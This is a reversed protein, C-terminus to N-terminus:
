VIFTVMFVIWLVVCIVTRLASQSVFMSYITGVLLIAAIVVLGICFSLQKLASSYFWAQVQNRREVVTKGTSIWAQKMQTLTKGNEFPLQTKRLITLPIVMFVVPVMALAANRIWGRTAYGYALMLLVALLATAIAQLIKTRSKSTGSMRVFIGVSLVATTVMLINLNRTRMEPRWFLDCLNLPLYAWVDGWFVTAQDSVANRSADLVMVELMTAVSLALLLGLVVSMVYYGRFTKDYMKKM